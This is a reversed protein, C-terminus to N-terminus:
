NYMGPSNPFMRQSVPAKGQQNSTLLTDTGIKDGISILMKIFDVDNGMGNTNLKAILEPPGFAQLAAKAKDLQVNYTNGYEKKLAIVSETQIQSNNKSIEGATKNIIASIQSYVKGAQDQSLEAAYFSDGLQKKFESSVEPTGEQGKFTYEEASAPIGLEKHYAALDEKSAGEKPRTISRGLKEKIELYSQAFESTNKYAKFEEHDKLDKSLGSMWGPVEKNPSEEKQNNAGSPENNGLLSGGLGDADPSLLVRTGFRRIM